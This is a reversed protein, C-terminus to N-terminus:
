KISLLNTYDSTELFSCFGVQFTCNFLVTLIVSIVTVLWCEWDLRQGLAKYLYM